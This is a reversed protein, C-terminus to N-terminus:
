ILPYCYVEISKDCLNFLEQFTMNSSETEIKLITETYGNDKGLSVELNKKLESLKYTNYGYYGGLIGLIIFSFSIILILSISFKHVKHGCKPCKKVDDTFETGCKQCYM